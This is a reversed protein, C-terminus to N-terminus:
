GFTRLLTLVLSVDGVETMGASANTAWAGGVVAASALFARAVRAQPRESLIAIATIWLLVIGVAAFLVLDM